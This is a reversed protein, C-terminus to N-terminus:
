SQTAPLTIKPHRAATSITATCIAVSFSKGKMRDPGDGVANVRRSASPNLLKIPVATAHRTRCDGKAANTRINVELWTAVVNM